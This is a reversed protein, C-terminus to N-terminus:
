DKYIPLDFHVTTGAGVTSRLHLQGSHQAIVRKVIALGLGSGPTRIQRGRVFRQQVADLEDAAIGIGKDRVEVFVADREHWASVRLWRQEASYRIANDILNDLALRLATRDGRVMPLDLPVQADVHFHLDTLQQQFGSISEEILEAPALREYSYLDAADTVRAYALLNDVLHTLRRSEQVLMGAYEHTGRPDLRGRLLTDGIIRIAALPTKLEHTVTSVFESRLATLAASARVTHAIMSFGLVLTLTAGGMLMLIWDNGRTAWTLNPDSAASVRVQWLPPASDNDESQESVASDIFQLPFDRTAATGEVLSGAVLVGFEDVVSYDVAITREGIQAVQSVIEPFYQARVWALNVTFGTISEIRERLKDAYTLRAV